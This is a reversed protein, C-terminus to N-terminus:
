LSPRWVAVDGFTTPTRQSVSLHPALLVARSRPRGLCVLAVPPLTLGCPLRRPVLPSTRARGRAVLVRLRTFFALLNPGVSTTPLARCSRSPSSAAAGAVRDRCPRLPRDRLAALRARAPPPASTSRSCGGSDGMTPKSVLLPQLTSPSPPSLAAAARRDAGVRGGRSLAGAAGLMCSCREAAACAPELDPRAHIRRAVPRTGGGGPSYSSASWCFVAAARSRPHGVRRRRPSSPPTLTSWRPCREAPPSGATTPQAAERVRVRSPNAAPSRPADARTPGAASAALARALLGTRLDDVAAQHRCETSRFYLDRNPSSSSCPARLPTPGAPRPPRLPASPVFLLAAADHLAQLTPRDSYFSIRTSGAM